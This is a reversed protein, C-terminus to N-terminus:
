KVEKRMEEYKRLLTTLRRKESTFSNKLEDSVNQQAEIVCELNHKIEMIAMEIQNLSLDKEM